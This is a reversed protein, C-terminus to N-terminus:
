LFDVPCIKAELEVARAPDSKPIPTTHLFIRVVHGPSVLMGDTVNLFVEIPIGESSRDIVDLVEHEETFRHVVVRYRVIPVASRRKEPEIHPRITGLPKTWRSGDFLYKTSDPELRHVNELLIDGCFREIGIRIRNGLGLPVITGGLSYYETILLIFTRLEEMRIESLDILRNWDVARGGFQGCFVRRLVSELFESALEFVTTPGHSKGEEVISDEFVDNTFLVLLEVMTVPRDIHSRESRFDGGTRSLKEVGVVM